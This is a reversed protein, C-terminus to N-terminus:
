AVSRFSDETWAAAGVRSSPVWQSAWRRSSVTTSIRGVPTTSWWWRMRRPKSSRAFCGEDGATRGSRM